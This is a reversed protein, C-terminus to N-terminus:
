IELLIRTPDEIVEKVRVLFQVAERGDVIRHDYSLALYMMPRAVVQDDVVVARRTINHMGLIASQPPNLIPTSLMSGYVGGNSITFTGGTLDDVSLKRERARKALEAIELEIEIYRKRDADRVIPVVLGHETSVAVGIDYYHKYVIDEGDIEANVTPYEQLAEICAKTFFSMFGIAIGYKERFAEKYKARLAMVASMDVENFTTLIAATRQAEVLREAIRQRLRSMRVRNERGDAGGPAPQAASQAATQSAPRPVPPEAAPRQARREVFDIVDGKTIQGRRGTGSIGAPDLGHQAVMRQASPTLSRAEALTGVAPPRSARPAQAIEAAPAEEASARPAAPAEPQAAPAPHEAPTGATDIKCLVDGVVVTEGDAKLIESLVGAQSAPVEVMVKDTELEVLSEGDEVADGAQKLWNSVTAESISEGLDPVQIDVLM